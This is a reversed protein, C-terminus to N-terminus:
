IMLPKGKYTWKFPKALNNNFYEVFDHIKKKLEETSDCRLKKLLRRVLISFWMEVQNLWSAHKPTYVFHIRHSTDQLFAARTEMSKLVGEKGKIGLDTEIQCQEAVFRVLSESKHTNLQDVVFRWSANPDQSVVQQIHTLFDAETRTPGTSDIVLGTVVCFSAILAVTGNRVYNFEQREPLGSKMPLTPSPSGLAQIGTKEDTSVTHGGKEAFSPADHYVQCVERVEQQFEPDDTQGPYEWYRILHPKLDASNWIRQITRGSIDAVIGRKIIETRLDYPTWNSIPYGSKQPDELSVAILRCVQEASFKLPAGSRYKDSLASLIFNKFDDTKGEEEAQMISTAHLLWRSRWMRVTESSYGTSRAISANSQGDAALLIIHARSSLQQPCLRRNRYEKELHSRQKDTLQIAQATPGSILFM